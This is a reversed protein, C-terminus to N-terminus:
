IEKILYVSKSSAENLYAFGNRKYFEIANLNEKQVELKIHKMGLEASKEFCVKLLKKGIKMNQAEKKVGIFSIYAIKSEYDNAYLTVFGLNQTGYAVYVYANESLKSAYYSINDVKESISPSFVEDFENLIRLIDEKRDIERLRYM